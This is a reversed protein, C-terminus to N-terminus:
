RARRACRRRTTARPSPSAYVYAAAWAGAGGRNDIVVPQGLAQGFPEAFLRGFIDTNGGPPFAVVMRIRSSPFPAQAYAPAALLGLGAAARLIQRKKM